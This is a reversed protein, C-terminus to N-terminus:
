NSFLIITSSYKYLVFPPWKCIVSSNEFNYERQRIENQYMCVDYDSKVINASTILEINIILSSVM